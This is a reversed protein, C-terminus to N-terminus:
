VAPNIIRNALFDRAVNNIDNPQIRSEMNPQIANMRVSDLGLAAPATVPRPRPDAVWGIPDLIVDFPHELAQLTVNSFGISTLLYGVKRISFTDIPNSTDTCWLWLLWTGDAGSYSEGVSVCNGARDPVDIWVGEIPLNTSTKCIGRFPGLLGEAM